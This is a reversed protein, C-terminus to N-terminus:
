VEAEEESVGPLVFIFTSGGSPNNEAWIRGRHLEVISRCIALGLGTGKEGRTGRTRKKAQVYKNFITEIEGPPIGVGTDQVEVRLAGGEDRARIAISGGDHTFKVANSLVNNVVQLIKERDLVTIPLPKKVEVSIDINKSSAMPLVVKRAQDIIERIDEEHLSLTLRGAEFRALDLFADILRVLSKVSEVVGNLCEAQEEVSLVNRTLNEKLVGIYGSISTLPSRLDHSAIALFEDKMRSLEELQANKEHLEQALKERVVKERQM